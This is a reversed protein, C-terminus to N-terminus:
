RAIRAALSFIPPFMYTKYRKQGSFATCLILYQRLATQSESGLISICNSEGNDDTPFVGTEVLSDISSSLLEELIGILSRLTKTSVVRLLDM